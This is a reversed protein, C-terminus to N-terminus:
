SGAFFFRNHQHLKSKQCLTCLGVTLSLTCHMLDQSPSLIFFSFVLCCVPQQQNSNVFEFRQIRPNPAVCRILCPLWSPSVCVLSVLFFFLVRLPLPLYWLEDTTGSEMWIKKSQYSFISSLLRMKTSFGDYQEQGELTLGDRLEQSSTQQDAAAKLHKM